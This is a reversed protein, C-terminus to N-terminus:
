ALALEDLEHRCLQSFATVITVNRWTSSPKEYQEAPWDREAVYSTWYTPDRVATQKSLGRRHKNTDM